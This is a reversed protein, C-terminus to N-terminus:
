LVIVSNFKCIMENLKKLLCKRDIVSLKFVRINNQHVAAVIKYESTAIRTYCDVMEKNRMLVM